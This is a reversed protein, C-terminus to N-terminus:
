RKKSTALDPAQQHFSGSGFSYPYLYNRIRIRSVWFSGSGCFRNALFNNRESSQFVNVFAVGEKQVRTGGAKAANCFHAPRLQHQHHLEGEEPEGSEAIEELQQQQELPQGSSHRRQPSLAYNKLMDEEVREYFSTSINVLFRPPPTKKPGNIKLAVYFLYSNTTKRKVCRRLSCTPTCTFICEDIIM